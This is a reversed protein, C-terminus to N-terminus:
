YITPKKEKYIYFKELTNLLKGKNQIKIICMCNEINNYEHGTDLIHQSYGTKARNNKIDRIPEKYIIFDTLTDNIDTHTTDFMILIDDVYRHYSIIKHKILLQLIQNHETSQLYFEALLASSPAGMALGESQFAL